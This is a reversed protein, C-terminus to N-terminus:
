TGTTKQWVPPYGKSAWRVAQNHAHRAKYIGTSYHVTGGRFGGEITTMYRNERQKKTQINVTSGDADELQTFLSIDKTKLM